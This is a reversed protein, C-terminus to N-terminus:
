NVEFTIIKSETTGNSTAALRISWTGSGLDSVPVSFGACTSYEAQYMLPATQNVTNGGNTVKLNCTGSSYGPLKTFVTVTDNAEQKASLEITKGPTPANTDIQNSSNPKQAQGEIFQQKNAANINAEQKKQEETPGSTAATDTSLSSLNTVGSRELFVFILVIALLALPALLLRNKQPKTKRM